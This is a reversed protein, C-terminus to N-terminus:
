SKKKSYWWLRELYGAQCDVEPFLMAEHIGLRFLEELLQPKANKPIVYRKLIPKDHCERDVTDLSITQPMREDEPYQERLEDSYAKGGHLTFVSSQFVM